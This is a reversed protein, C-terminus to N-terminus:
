SAPVSLFQLYADSRTVAQLLAVKWYNVGHQKALAQARTSCAQVVGARDLDMPMESFVEGAREAYRDLLHLTKYHSDIAAYVLPQMTSPRELVFRATPVGGVLDVTADLWEEHLPIADYYFHLVCRRGGTDLWRDGKWSNCEGCAPLLNNHCVAFEPFAEIPLYHDATSPSNIGCYACIARGYATQEQRIAVILRDLSETSSSYCHRLDAGETVSFAGATVRELVLRQNVYENYCDSVRGRLAALRADRGKLKANAIADYHDIAHDALPRLNRM